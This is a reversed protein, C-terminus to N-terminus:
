KKSIRTRLIEAILPRSEKLDGLDLELKSRDSLLKYFRMLESSWAGSVVDIVSEGQSNKKEVSAGLELLWEVMEERCLFAAIHLPTNGDRNSRSISAGKKRLYKAIENKGHYIATSMPTMGDESRRTRLSAGIGVLRKTAALDGRSIADFLAASSRSPDM